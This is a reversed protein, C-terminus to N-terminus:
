SSRNSKRPPCTMRRNAVQHVGDLMQQKGPDAGDGFNPVRGYRRHDLVPQPGLVWRPMGLIPPHNPTAVALFRQVGPWVLVLM